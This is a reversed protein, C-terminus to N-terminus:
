DLMIERFRDIEAQTVGCDLLYLAIREDLPANPDGYRSFGADFQRYDRWIMEGAYGNETEPPMKPYFTSEWDVELDHRDVGLVGLLVYALSGTRDAGAICHFYIPYNEVACFVRFNEAMTRKGKDFLDSWKGDASFIGGYAPSPNHIFKVGEGLPSQRMDAVECPTRLDLETKIGLTGKLYAADAMTLRNKGAADGNVSNDNFAQGRFLLGQRVRKGSRTGWGGLDRINSVKGEIAIWRPPLDSTTFSATPSIHAAPGKGCRCTGALTSGCFTRKLCRVNSFVRWYYTRGLELNADPIEYGFASGDKDAPLRPKEERIWWTRADSLDAHTGIEIKWPGSEGNEVTWRLVLPQSKGWQASRSGGISKLCELRNSHTPGASVTRQAEPLLDVIAGDAPSLLRVGAGLQTQGACAAVPFASVRLKACGYPILKLPNGRVDLLHLSVPADRPWDWTKPMKRRKVSIDDASLSAPLVPEYTDGQPTNEDKESIAHAFLLPGCTVSIRQRGFENMDRWLRIVPQMPFHLTLEDGKRWARRISAFGNKEVPETKKGNLAVSPAACWGPIRFQLPFEKGPADDVRIVIKESFPYDTQEALAVRGAPLETEYTSPGYLAAAVGGESTKMWMGQLYAPIIRNLAATCCLPWHKKLYRTTTEHAHSACLKAENGVGTRNPMQFYVHRRFDQSVSAAGANFYMREAEDARVGEAFTQLLRIRAVLGAAVVCTETGRRAGSWGWEEDSVPLGYPQECHEDFFAMWGEMAQKLKPDGTRWYAALVSLLSEQMNVGHRSPLKFKREHIRKLNLTDALHEWPPEAFQNASIKRCAVDLCKAVEPSRTIRWAEYIGSAFSTDGGFREAMKPYAFACELARKARQDGTAEFYAAVARAACGLVWRFHWSGYEFAEKQQELDRRDLWWLFGCSNEDVHDLLPELRSRALEKLFPDDLQWALRVLGDFWYAGGEASWSGKKMDFWQLYEGRRVANTTWAIRFHEDLEALHGTFGNKAAVARDRIWGAPRVAGPRDQWMPLSMEGGFAPCAACLVLYALSKRFRNM